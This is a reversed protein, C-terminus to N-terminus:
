KSKKSKKGKKKKKKSQKLNTMMDVFKEYNIQGNSETDAIKIMANIEDDTLCDGLKTLFERLDTSYIYGQKQRDLIKFAKKVEDVIENPDRIFLGLANIFKYFDLFEEEPRTQDKISAKPKKKASKNEKAKENAESENEPKKPNVIEILQNVQNDTPIQQLIRLITGLQAVPLENKEETDFSKFVKVFEDIEEASVKGDLLKCLGILQEKKIGNFYEIETLKVELNAKNLKIKTNAEASNTSNM